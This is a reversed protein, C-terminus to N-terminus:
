LVVLERCVIRREAVREAPTSLSAPRARSEGALISEESTVSSASTTGSERSCSKMTAGGLNRSTVREANRM